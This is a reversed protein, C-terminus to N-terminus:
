KSTKKPNIMPSGVQNLDIRGRLHLDAGVEQGPEVTYFYLANTANDVVLLNTGDTDVVHYKAVAERPGAQQAATQPRYGFIGVAIVLIALATGWGFTKWTM